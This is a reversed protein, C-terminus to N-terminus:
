FCKGQFLFLLSILWLAPRSRKDWLDSSINRATRKRRLRANISDMRCFEPTCFKMSKQHATHILHWQAMSKRLGRGENLHVSLSQIVSEGKNLSSGLKQLTRNSVLKRLASLSSELKSVNPPRVNKYIYINWIIWFLVLASPINVIHWM